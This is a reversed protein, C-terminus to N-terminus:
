RHTADHFGKMPEANTRVAKQPPGDARAHRQRHVLAKGNRSGTRSWGGLVQPSVATRRCPFTHRMKAAKRLPCKPRALNGRSAHVTANHNGHVADAPTNRYPAPFVCFLLSNAPVAYLVRPFPLPLSGHNTVPPEHSASNETTLECNVAFGLDEAPQLARSSCSPSPSAKKTPGSPKVWVSLSRELRQPRGPQARAAYDVVGWGGMGTLAPFLPTISCKRPHTPFFPSLNLFKHSTRRARARLCLKGRGGLM